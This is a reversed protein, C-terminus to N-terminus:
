LTCVLLFIIVVIFLSVILFYSLVTCVVCFIIPIENINILYYYCIIWLSGSHAKARPKLSYFGGVYADLMLSLVCFRCRRLDKLSCLDGNFM